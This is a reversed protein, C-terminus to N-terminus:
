ELGVVQHEGDLKLLEGNFRNLEPAVALMQAISRRSKEEPELNHRFV